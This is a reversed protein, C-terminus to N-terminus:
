INRRRTKKAILGETLTQYLYFLHAVRDADNTFTKGYAKEVAKDLRQHAKVLEPPMTDPDYLAAMSSDPYKARADLVGQAAEGVAAKQKETPTPWPYNNYVISNSYRYDSKLRGCVYRMWAMHFASTLIGFEYFGANPLVLATDGAIIKKSMFGIPIYRRRESSVRPIFLYDTEPQRIEGFIAPFEALKRTAERASSERHSKVKEIRIRVAKINRYKELPIGNLWICYKPINNIFEVAGMFPQIVKTINPDEKILAAREEETLLYYGGDNPMNGFVMEPVRCIPSSKKDIFIPPADILYANIQSVLSKVPNSTVTAFHFLEKEKRDKLGFGIIVCYVAAMGKAENQWKFTQYAFNIMVGYKQMLYPWLIPVQEGQCISNTSVFAAEIATDQM